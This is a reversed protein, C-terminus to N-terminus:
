HEGSGESTRATDKKQLREELERNRNKHRRVRTSQVALGTGTLATTAALAANFSVSLSLGFDTRTGAIAHALPVAMLAFVGLGVLCIFVGLAWAATLYVRARAILVEDSPRDATGRRAGKRRKAM